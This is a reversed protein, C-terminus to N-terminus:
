EVKSVLTITPHVDRLNLHPAPRSPFLGVERLELSLLFPNPFSFDLHMKKIRWIMQQRNEM